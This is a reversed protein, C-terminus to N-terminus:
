SPGAELQQQQNSLQSRPPTVMILTHGNVKIKAVVARNGRHARGAATYAAIERESSLTSQAVVRCVVACLKDYYRPWDDTEHSIVAETIRAFLIQSIEDLSDDRPSDASLADGVELAGGQRASVKAFPKNRGITRNGCPPREGNSDMESCHNSTRRPHGSRNHAGSACRM